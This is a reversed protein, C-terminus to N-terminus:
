DEDVQAWIAEIKRDPAREGRAAYVQELEAIKRSADNKTMFVGYVAITLKYM